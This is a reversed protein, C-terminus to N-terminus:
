RKSEFFQKLLEASAEEEIGGYIEPTKINATNHLVRAGNEVGGGKPDYAGFYLRDLRAVGILAACMPCPELTVYMSYGALRPGGTVAAARRIALVEAHASPDNSGYTENHGVAVIERTRTNFVVAGVPVERAQDASKAERIAQKIINEM